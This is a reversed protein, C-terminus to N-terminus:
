APIGIPLHSGSSRAPVSPRRDRRRRGDKYYVWLLVGILLFLTFQVSVVFWSSLLARRSDTQNRASLLRQVVLQDTGHSATTLFCGGIVGAWFTYPIRGPALRFDFVQFKGAAGACRRAVHAWGGPIQALIVFFSAVAGLSTCSCRCSM